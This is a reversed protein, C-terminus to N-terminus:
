DSVQGGVPRGGYVASLEHDVAPRDAGDSIELNTGAGPPSHSGQRKAVVSGFHSTLPATACGLDPHQNLTLSQSRLAIFAKAPGFRISGAAMLPPGTDVLHPGEFRFVRM